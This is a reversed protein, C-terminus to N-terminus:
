ILSLLASYIRRYLRYHGAKNPHIGYTTFIKRHTENEYNIGSTDLLDIVPISYKKCLEKIVDVYDILTFGVDNKTFSSTFNDGTTTSHRHVPTIFIIEKGAYKTLVFNILNELAGKYSYIPDDVDDINMPVNFNWDNSSCAVLVIDFDDSMNNSNTLISPLEIANNTEAICAYPVSYNICSAFKTALLDSYGILNGDTDTKSMSIGDGIIGLKMKHFNHETIRDSLPYGEDDYVARDVTKFCYKEGTKLLKPFGTKM